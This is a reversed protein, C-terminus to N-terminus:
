DNTRLLNQSFSKKVNEGYLHIPVCIQGLRFLDFIMRSYDDLCM